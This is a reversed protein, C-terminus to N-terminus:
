PAPGPTSALDTAALHLSGSGLSAYLAIRASVLARRTQALQQQTSLLERQADLVELFAAAGNDYRLRALRAREAHVDLAAQEIAAQRSLWERSSLADSVERFATQVTKEYSAISMDRRIEALDLSTRLRGGDFVPLSISPAFRWAGSGSAFLGDLQSSATGLNGTLSIRPFFAARAADINAQAAQLRHEAARIDPRQVLLESPLGPQLEPFPALSNLAAGRPTLEVPAGVLLVLAHAQAARTQALQAGLSQAQSLLTRVQLLDLRSTSGVEFRRTFIRLSEEHSAIARQALAIREDLAKLGYYSDAVSTVLMLHITRRAQDTALFDQLAADELSRVRGWFDLEWASIGLTAQYQSSTVPQGTLSLDGPTRARAADVGLGLSPLRETRQIGYAARAEQVQLIATRLDRSNELALAILTQLQPDTFYGRWDLGPAPVGPAVDTPQAPYQTAVPLALRAPSPTPPACGAALLMAATATPLLWRRTHNM